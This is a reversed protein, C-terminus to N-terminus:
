LGVSLFTDWLDGLKSRADTMGLGRWAEWFQEKDQGTFILCPWGEPADEAKWVLVLATGKGDAMPEETLRYWLADAITTGQPRTDKTITMTM